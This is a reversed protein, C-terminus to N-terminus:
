LELKETNLCISSLFINNSIGPVSTYPELIERIAHGLLVGGMNRRTILLNIIVVSIDQAKFNSIEPRIVRYNESSCCLEDHDKHQNVQYRKTNRILIWIM